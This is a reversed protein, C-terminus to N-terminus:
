QLMEKQRGNRIYQGVEAEDRSLKSAPFRMVYSRQGLTSRCGSVACSGLPAANNKM